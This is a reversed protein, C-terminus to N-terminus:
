FSIDSSSPFPYGFCTPRHRLSESLCFRRQDLLPSLVNESNLGHERSTWCITLHPGSVLEVHRTPCRSAAIWSTDRHWITSLRSYWVACNSAYANQCGYGVCVTACYHHSTILDSSEMIDYTTHREYSCSCETSISHPGVSLFVLRM